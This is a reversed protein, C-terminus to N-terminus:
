QLLRRGSSSPFSLVFSIARPNGSAASTSLSGNDWEQFGPRPLWRLRGGVFCFVLSSGRSILHMIQACLGAPLCVIIRCLKGPLKWRDARRRRGASRVSKLPATAASSCLFHPPQFAFPTPSSPFLIRTRQLMRMDHGRPACLRSRLTSRESLSCPRQSGRGLVVATVSADSVRQPGCPGPRWLVMLVSMSDFLPRAQRLRKPRVPPNRAPRQLVRGSVRQPAFARGGRVLPASVSLIQPRAPWLRKPRVPPSRAWCLPLTRVMRSRSGQPGDASKSPCWQARCTVGQVKGVPPLTPTVRAGRFHLHGTKSPQDVRPGGGARGLAVRVTSKSLGAEGIVRVGGEDVAVWCLALPIIPFPHEIPPNLPSGFRGGAGM